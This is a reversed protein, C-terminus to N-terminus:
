STEKDEPHILYIYLFTSPPPTDEETATDIVWIRERVWLEVMRLATGPYLGCVKLQCYNFFRGGERWSIQDDFGEVPDSIKVRSLVAM